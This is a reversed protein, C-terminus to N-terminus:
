LLGAHPLREDVHLGLDVEYSARLQAQAYAGRTAPMEPEPLSLKPCNVIDKKCRHLDGPLSELKPSVEIHLSRLDRMGEPLKTLDKCELLALEELGSVEDIHVERMSGRVSLIKVTPPLQMPGKQETLILKALSRLKLGELLGAHKIRLSSIRGLLRPDLGKLFAVSIDLQSLDLLTGEPLNDLAEDPLLMSTGDVCDWSYLVLRKLSPLDLTRLWEATNPAKLGTIAAREDQTMSGLVEGGDRLDCTSLDYTAKGGVRRRHERFERDSAFVAVVGDFRKMGDRFMHCPVRLNPYMLELRSRVVGEGLHDRFLRSVACVAPNMDPCCLATASLVQVVQWESSPTDPVTSAGTFCGDSRFRKAPRTDVM